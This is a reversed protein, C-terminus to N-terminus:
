RRHHRDHKVAILQVGGRPESFDVGFSEFNEDIDDNLIRVTVTRQSDDGSAWDLRGSTATYDSGATASDALVSITAPTNVISGHRYDTAFNVSAAGDRGAVREITM